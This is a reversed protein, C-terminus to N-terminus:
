LPFYLFIHNVFACVSVMELTSFSAIKARIILLRLFTSKYKFNSSFIQSIIAFPIISFGFPKIFGKIEYLSLEFSIFPAKDFFTLIVGSILFIISSIEFYM